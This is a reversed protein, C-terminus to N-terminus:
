HSTSSLPPGSAVVEKVAVKLAPTMKAQVAPGGTTVEVTALEQSSQTATPMRFFTVVTRRWPKSDGKRTIQVATGGASPM